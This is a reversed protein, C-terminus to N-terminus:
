ESKRKRPKKAKERNAKTKKPSTQLGGQRGAARRQEKIEDLIEQLDEACAYAALLMGSRVQPPINRPLNKDAERWQKVLARLRQFTTM